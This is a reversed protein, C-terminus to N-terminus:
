ASGARLLKRITGPQWQGKGSLTALGEAELQEAIQVSDLGTAHMQHLLALLAAKDLKVKPVPPVPLARPIIETNGTNGSVQGSEIGGLRQDLAQVAGHLQRMVGILTSLMSPLTEGEEEGKGMNTTNGENGETEDGEAASRRYRPDVGELRMELGDRVLESMSLRHEKAYREVQDLLEVPAKFSATRQEVTTLRM